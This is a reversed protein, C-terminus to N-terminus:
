FLQNTKLPIIVILIFKFPIPNSKNKEGIVIIKLYKGKNPFKKPAIELKM